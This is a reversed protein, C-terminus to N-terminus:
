RDDGNAGELQFRIENGCHRCRLVVQSPGQEAPLFLFAEVDFGFCSACVFGRCPKTGPIVFSYSRVDTASSDQFM